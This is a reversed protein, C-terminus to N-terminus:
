KHFVILECIDVDNNRNLQSTYKKIINKDNKTLNDHSIKKKCINEWELNWNLDKERLKNIYSKSALTILKDLDTNHVYDIPRKMDINNKALINIKKKLLADYHDQWIGLMVIYHMSSYGNANQFNLDSLPILKSVYNMNTNGTSLMRNLPIMKKIDFINVNIRHILKDSLLIDFMNYNDYNIIHHLATNGLSDQINIDANHDLLYELLEVNNLWIAYHLASFDHSDQANINAKSNLLSYVMQM